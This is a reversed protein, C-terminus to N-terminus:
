WNALIGGVKTAQEEMTVLALGLNADARVVAVMIAEAGANMSIIKGGEAEVVSEHFTGHELEDLAMEATGVIAAAMAALQRRDLSRPLLDDIIVGDRRVIGVATVGPVKRVSQLAQQLDRPSRM